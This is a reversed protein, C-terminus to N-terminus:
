SHIREDKKNKVEGSITCFKKHKKNCMCAFKCKYVKHMRYYGEIPCEEKTM